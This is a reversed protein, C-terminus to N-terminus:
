SGSIKAGLQRRKLGGNYEAEVVSCPVNKRVMYFLFHATSFSKCGHIDCQQINPVCDDLGNMYKQTFAELDFPLNVMARQLSVGNADVPALGASGQRDRICM